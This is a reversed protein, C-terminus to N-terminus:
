EMEGKLWDKMWAWYKDGIDAVELMLLEPVEYPHLEQIRKFIEKGKNGISKVALLYEIDDCIKGQWEYVSNINEIISICAALHEEVLTKAIRKADEKDSVTTLIIVPKM